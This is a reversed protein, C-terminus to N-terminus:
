AAGTHAFVTSFFFFLFVGLLAYLAASILDDVAYRVTDWAASHTNVPVKGM